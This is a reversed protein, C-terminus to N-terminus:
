HLSQDDIATVTLQGSAIRQTGALVLEKTRYSGFAAVDQERVIPFSDLIYAADSEDIDYLHMFLADLAAIRLRRDEADWRFPPGDYGLDHAFPAMDHATYTLHLVQERIFDAIKTAGISEEFREPVIVPLQELIYWNLHTSQAKQRVIFDFPMSNM